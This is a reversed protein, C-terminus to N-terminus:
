ILNDDIKIASVVKEDGSLRIIRVGQTNRGAIRIEKVAVRIVRGKNTSILIEDGEFVPFSSSVNGNRSSNVIGIIGKGGRNTVRFDNSATRKGFGNETISLIFKDGKKGNKTDKDITSLSVIMDKEKLNIGRIGKSSRGKFLRIKEVNFRISKGNLSSLIIDQDERCIKVGIIKDDPDLKMAIKGSANINIFDELSNKRIKGKSTAFVINLNKWESKEEPLPMISSISQHNKLPLINYLSKGRSITTGEHIKWAKLKYVLGETSFFIVSTHTNVSLTQVVSDQERTKIGAKGKGGRKQARVSSLAGRKIYGQLTVTIIVSEKQITEEIDYNLIADIIKTRRPNSYKEKILNLDNNIVKLLEKRSTLIKKYQIILDSLKKIETEIENIGLATLKQLRLELISNVQDISFSYATITNKKEILKIFKQTSKIKWKTKILTEKAIEPNKSNRIIKIIKDINEVAVSLGILIHARDEAKKLDFKTKKTVVDERFKLFSELFDKLNCNKPKKDVIALTNFSFSSELSTYKYLQRKVTEPETNRKLDIAVRIGERNSEDRIDSIGEIKKDRILEVIKENLVSKNIQYPINTIVLREKGNKLQEINIDGRIKFSGRGTKYGTKIIDKGIITGGTPFDPGPIHKMLENIKIDKNNILAQTANIVEGLNHPPISTAMGVAIGGAGNVLLNPYQAPLVVPEKETEDYNSKFDVTNKEIDEILYEAIKSLRTETYRMAAPRDGDVSGFNGQGDILPVSMSFDQVMRVLADYVAQDGHPHYKGIVDGVIRASKRFQKSWDFGGKYMAYIIRRHVPKLGDRIDPLARSVIVSMAYSLYSSSMEDYMAIPKIKSKQDIETKDM